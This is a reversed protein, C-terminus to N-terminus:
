HRVCARWTRGHKDDRGIRQMVRLKGIKRGAVADNFGQPSISAFPEKEGLPLRRSGLGSQDPDVRLKGGEIDRHILDAPRDIQDARALAAPEGEDVGRAKGLFDAADHQGARGNIQFGCARREGLRHFFRRVMDDIPQDLAAAANHSALLHRRKPGSLIALLAPKDVRQLELRRERRRGLLRGDGGKLTPIFADDIQRSRIIAFHETAQEPLIQQRAAGKRRQALRRINARQVLRQKQEDARMVRDRRRPLGQGPRIKDGARHFRRDRWAAM